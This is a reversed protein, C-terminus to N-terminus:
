NKLKPLLMNTGDNLLLRWRGSEYKWEKKNSPVYIKKGDLTLVYSGGKPGVRTAPEMKNLYFFYM